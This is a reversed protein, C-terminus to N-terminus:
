TPGQGENMQGNGSPPGGRLRVMAQADRQTGQEQLTQQVIAFNLEAGEAEAEVQL